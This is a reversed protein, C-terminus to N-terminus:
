KEEEKKEPNRGAEKNEIGDKRLSKYIGDLIGNVFVAAEDGSFKRAIEIAEDIIIPPPLTKEFLLEFVAIRLINRDVMAMRDLRWHRSAEEIAQDIEIKHQKIGNTLWTAYEQVEPKVPQTSWYDKFIEEPRDPSFELQFLIQLVCERAKRRSGM